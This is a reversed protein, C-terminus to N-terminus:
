RVVVEVVGGVCGGGDVWSKLSARWGRRRGAEEGVRIMSVYLRSFVKPHAELAASFLEGKNVAEGIQRMVVRFAGSEEGEGLSELAQPIPIAAALLAGMERTFATVEKRKM